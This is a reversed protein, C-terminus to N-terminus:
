MTESRRPQTRRHEYGVIPSYSEIRFYASQLAYPVRPLFSRDIGVDVAAWFRACAFSSYSENRACHGLRWSSSRIESLHTASIRAASPLSPGWGPPSQTPSGRDM